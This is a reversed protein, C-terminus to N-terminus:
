PLRERCGDETFRSDDRDREMIGAAVLEHFAELHRDRGPMKWGKARFRLTAVTSESLQITDPM